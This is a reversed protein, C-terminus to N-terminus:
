EEMVKKWRHECYGCRGGNDLAALQESMPISNTCDSCEGVLHANFVHEELVYRQNESLSLEGEHVFKQAVGLAAGELMEREILTSVFDKRDADESDQWEDM